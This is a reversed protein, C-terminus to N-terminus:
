IIAKVLGGDASVSQGTTFSCRPSALFVVLSAVEDPSGMRKLATAQAAETFYEDRSLGRGGAEAEAKRNWQPTLIRGPCVSNVRVQPALEEALSRTLNLLAGKAANSAIQGHAPQKGSAAGMFTLSGRKSKMLFSASSRALRVASMLNLDYSALWDADTLDPLRGRRSGGAALIAIDLASGGAAITVAREVDSAIKVDGVITTIRAGVGSRVDDALAQLRGADRAMATVVAGEEALMRVVSAGIGYSGGAVLAVAGALGLDM